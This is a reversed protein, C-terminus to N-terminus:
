DSCKRNGANERVFYLDGIRDALIKVNGTKDTVVAEHKQFLVNFGKDTIRSVSMLATRLNPVYLTNKLSM